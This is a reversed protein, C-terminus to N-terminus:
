ESASERILVFLEAPPLINKSGLGTTMKELLWELARKNERNQNAIKKEEGWTPKFVAGKKPNPVMLVLVKLGWGTRSGLQM